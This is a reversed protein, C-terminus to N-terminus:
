RVPDKADRADPLEDTRAPRMRQYAYAAALLLLGLAVFSLVRYLSELTSLDYLFVKALAITLLAFGGLRLGLRDRLLGVILAAVGTVSWFASLLVQGQQRVDLDLLGAAAASGDPQFASIILVSVLYILAVGSAGTLAPRWRPEQDHEARACVTCAAAISLLAVTAGAGDDVGYLLADPPAELVLVHLAGLGLFGGSGALAVDDRTRRAIEALTVAEVAWAAVLAPGDFAIAALYALAALGIMDLLLRYGQDDDAVLRASLLAAVSISGIAAAAGPLDAMDGALQGPPADFLLAHTIALAIHAGLGTRLVDDDAIGLGTPKRHSKALRAFLVASGAWGAALVPGSAILGFAVDALTVGTAVLLLGIARSIQPSRLAGAGLGFHAVALAVVWLDGLTEEGIEDFAAYGAAAITLASLGLLVTSSARLPAAPLRVEYGIAAAAYLSWFLFLGIALELRAPSDFAWALLQPASVVFGVVALWDWRRWVLVGVASALAVALFVLTGDSTEAEVLVPALLAGVIGLGAIARSSWHIALATATAGIALAIALAPATPILGYLQTAATLTLYLASVGTGAMAMSAQTRGRREHLWVGGALLASSGAFALAIRTTEDVWGRRIAVAVFFAVGLLVAVGGAWALLRM